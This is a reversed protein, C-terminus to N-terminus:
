IFISTKGLQFWGTGIHDQKFLNLSKESAYVYLKITERESWGTILRINYKEILEKYSSLYSMPIILEANIGNEIRKAEDVTKYNSFPDFSMEFLCKLIIRNLDVKVIRSNFFIYM